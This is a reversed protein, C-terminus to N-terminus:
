SCRLPPKSTCRLVERSADRAEEIKRYGDRVFQEAVSWADLFGKRDGRLQDKLFVSLGPAELDADILLVKRQWAALQLGVNYLSLTRGVGGKFSHFTVFCTDDTMRTM